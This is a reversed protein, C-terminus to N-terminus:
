FLVFHISSRPFCSLWNTLHDIYQSREISDDVEDGDGRRHMRDAVYDSFTLGPPLSAENRASNYVSYVRDSPRRLIFLLQPRPEISALAPPATAQYLYVPTGEVILKSRAGDCHRFYAEYGDLGHDHFNARPNLWRAGRDVFYRTEKVSSGCVQPHDVLWEFLSTTGCKPAGAIVLNPLTM